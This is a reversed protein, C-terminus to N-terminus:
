FLDRTSGENEPISEEEEMVEEDDSIEEFGEDGEFIFGPTRVSEISESDDLTTDKRFLGYEERLIRKVERGQEKMDSKIKQIAMKLGYNVKVEGDVSIIHLPLRTRVGDDAIEGYKSNLRNRRANKWLVDAMYLWINYEYDGNFYHTGSGTIDIASSRIDMEPIILKEDRIYFTNSLTKFKIHKLEDVEIYKSLALMPEFGILEGNVIDLDAETFLTAPILNFTKDMTARFNVKGTLMGKLHKDQITQQGFNNFTKFLTNININLIEFTSSMLFQEKDMKRIMFDGATEGEAFGFKTDSFAISGPQIYALGKCHDAKMNEWRFQAVDFVIKLKFNEPLTFIANDKKDESASVITNVDFKPSILKGEARFVPNRKLVYRIPDFITGSFELRNGNLTGQLSKLKMQSGELEVDGDVGEIRIKGSQDAYGVESLHLTGESNLSVIDESKIDSFKKLRIKSKLDTKVIGSLVGISDTNMFDSLEKLQLTSQLVISIDPNQLNRITINGKIDSNGIVAELKKVQLVSSSPKNARGNTFFAELQLNEISHPANNGTIRGNKLACKAIVHPHHYQGTSGTIAATFEFDGASRYGKFTKQWQEPLINLFRKLDLENGKVILDIKDPEGSLYSGSLALQQGLISLSGKRVRYANDNVQLLLSAQVNKDRLYNTNEVSLEYLKADANIDLIYKKASLDGRLVVQKLHSNVVTHNTLSQNLLHVNTFKVNKLQLNFDSSDSKTKGKKWILTNSEGDRDTLLNIFGNDMHLSKLRYRQKLLDYLDFQLSLREMFFLTDAKKSSFHRENFNKSSYATVNKLEVSADPFQRLLSFSIKESNVQTNLNKNLGAVVYDVIEDRFYYSAAVSLAVVGIFIWFLVAIIKKITRM